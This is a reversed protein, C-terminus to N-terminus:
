YHISKICVQHSTQCEIWIAYWSNDDNLLTGKFFSEMYPTVNLNWIVRQSVTCWRYVFWCKWLRWFLNMASFRTNAKSHRCLDLQLPQSCLLLRWFLAANIHNVGDPLLLTPKYTPRKVAPRLSSSLSTSKKMLLETPSSPCISKPAKALKSVDNFIYSFFSSFSCLFYPRPESVMCCGLLVGPTFFSICCETRATLVRVCLMLADM